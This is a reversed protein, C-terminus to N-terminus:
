LPIIDESPTGNTNEILDMVDDLFAPRMEHKSAVGLMTSPTEKLLRYIVDLPAGAVAAARFPTFGNSDQIQLFSGSKKLFYELIGLKCIQSTVYYHVPTCGHRADTLSLVSPDIEVLYRIIQNQGAFFPMACVTHLPTMGHGLDKLAFEPWRKFYMAMMKLDSCVSKFIDAFEEYTGQELVVFAYTIVKRRLANCLGRSCSGRKEQRAFSMLPTEGYVDRHLLSKEECGNILDDLLRFSCPQGLFGIKHLPVQKANKSVVARGDPYQDILFKVVDEASRNNCCAIHLPLNGNDNEEKVAAPHISYILKVIPLPSWAAANHLPLNGFRKQRMLSPVSNSLSRIRKCTERIDDQNQHFKSELILQYLYSTNSFSKMVENVAKVTRNPKAIPPPSGIM